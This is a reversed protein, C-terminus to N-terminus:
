KKKGVAASRKSDHTESTLSTPADATAAVAQATTTATGAPEILSAQVEREAELWDDLAHGHEGGRNHFIEHARKAIMESVDISGLEENGSEKLNAESM